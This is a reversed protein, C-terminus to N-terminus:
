QRPSYAPSWCCHWALTAGAGLIDCPSNYYIAQPHPGYPAVQVTVFSGRHYVWFVLWLYKLAWIISDVNQMCKLRGRKWRAAPGLTGSGTQLAKCKMPPGGHLCLLCGVQNTGTRHTQTITVNLPPEQVWHLGFKTMFLCQGFWFRDKGFWICVM